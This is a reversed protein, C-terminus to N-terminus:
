KDTGDGTRYRFYYRLIGYDSLQGMKDKELMKDKKLM